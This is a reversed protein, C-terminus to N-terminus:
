KLDHRHHENKSAEALGLRGDPGVHWSAGGTALSDIRRRVLEYQERLRAREEEDRRDSAIVRRFYLSSRLARLAALDSTALLWFAFVDVPISLSPTM